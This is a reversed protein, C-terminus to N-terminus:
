IGIGYSRQPAAARLAARPRLERNSVRNYKSLIGAIQELKQQATFDENELVAHIESMWHGVAECIASAMETAVVDIFETEM